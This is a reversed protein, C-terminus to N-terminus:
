SFLIASLRRRNALTVPHGPGLADFIKVLQKRAAEDNWTREARVIALLEDIAAESRGAAYLGVAYDFRAQHDAPNAEVRRRLDRLDGGSNAEEALEIAAVAAAVDGQRATEASLGNAFRRAGAVDGLGVKARIVGAIAKKHQPDEALVHNFMELADHLDGAELMHRAQEVVEDIPSAGGQSLRDIFAKIQSESQAGVFADVPRGGFFAYVTPISQIRLQAALNQNQDVNIKVMRVRGSAKKVLRELIPGM